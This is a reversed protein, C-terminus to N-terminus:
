LQQRIRFFCCVKDLFGLHIRQRNGDAGRMASVLEGAWGCTVNQRNITDLSNMSPDRAGVQHHM